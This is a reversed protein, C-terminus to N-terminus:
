VYRTSENARELSDFHTKSADLNDVADRASTFISTCIESQEQIKSSFFSMLNSIERLQNQSERLADIDSTFHNLLEQAMKEMEPSLHCDLGSDDFIQSDINTQVSSFSYGKSNNFGVSNLKATFKNKRRYKEDLEKAIKSQLSSSLEGLLTYMCSVILVRHSYKDEDGLKSINNNDGERKLYYKNELELMKNQCIQIEQTLSSGKKDGFSGANGGNLIDNIDRIEEKELENKINVIDRCLNNVDNIFESVGQELFEVEGDGVERVIRKFEDTRDFM